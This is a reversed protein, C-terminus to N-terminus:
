RYPVCNVVTEGSYVQGSTGTILCALYYQTNAALGELLVSTSNGSNTPAGITPGFPRISWAASAVTDNNSPDIQATYNLVENPTQSTSNM